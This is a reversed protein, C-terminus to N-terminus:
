RQDVECEDVVWGHCNPSKCRCPIAATIGWNYDITIEDGPKVDRSAFLLVRRRPTTEGTGILDFWDFESNPDCSHNIFRFPYQPELCFGDGVRFCYESAYSADNVLTGAIEGILEDPRYHKLSFVGRGTRSHAVRVPETKGSRPWSKRRAPRQAAM